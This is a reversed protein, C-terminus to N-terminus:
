GTARLGLRLGVGLCAHCRCLSALLEASRPPTVLPPTSQPPTGLPPTRSPPTVLPGVAGCVAAAVGRGGGAERGWPEAASADDESSSSTGSLM